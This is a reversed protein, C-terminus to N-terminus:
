SHDLIKDEICKVHHSWQYKELVRERANEGLKAGVVRNAEIFILAFLFEQRSNPTFLIGNKDLHARGDFNHLCSAHLAPSLVSGIQELNSAIIPRDMSMFEFLKTPSGFFKSGDPNQVHPSLFVDMIALIKPAQDQDVIGTWIIYPAVNVDDILTKVSDGFPGDGVLLFKINKVDLWDRETDVLERITDCLFEIGHWAGFTGIFGFVFDYENIGYKARLDNKEKDTYLRPNFKNSDVCNPYVVIRSEDVGRESLEDALVKSVTVVVDAARISLEEAKLALGEFLIKIGWHRAAWAESGNYELVLPIDHKYKLKAGSFNCRSLRQYIITNSTENLLGSVQTVASDGFRFIAVDSFFPTIPQAKLRRFCVQDVIQKLGQTSAYTVTWDSNIFSNIVGAIHGLSGGAKVGFMQNTNLYLIHSKNEFMRYRDKKLRRSLINMEIYAVILHKVLSFISVFISFLSKFFIHLSINSSAENKVVLVRNSSPVLFSLLILIDLYATESSDELFVFLNNASIQRLSSISFILGKQRLSNIAVYSNIQPFQRSLEAKVDYSISHSSIVIDNKIKSYTM